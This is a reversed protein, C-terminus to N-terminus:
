GSVATATGFPVMRNRKEDWLKLSFCRRIDRISLRIPRLEGLGEIKAMAEPLRYFPIRANLHHVHHYGINGTFWRLMPGMSTYSSSRLAATVHDWHPPTKLRVGPYNHQSYFLYAGLASALMLPLLFAFILASPAFIALLVVAGGHLLLAVGCDWHRRPKTFLPKITMSYLFVTVYGLLITFPHRSFGYIFKEGPTAVAFRETTMVPFTGISQGFGKANHVHHHDHSRKWSSPPNLTALGFLTFIARATPSGRFITGHQQDHFLIFFRVLTLGVLYSAALRFGWHPALLASAMALALIAMTSLLHWWSRVRSESAFEKTARLIEAKTRFVPVRKTPLTATSM